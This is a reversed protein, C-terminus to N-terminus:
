ARWGLLREGITVVVVWYFFSALPLLIILRPNRNWMRIAIWLLVFWGIGLIVIGYLPAVLGAAAFFIVGVVLNIVFGISAVIHGLRDSEKSTTPASEPTASNAWFLLLNM